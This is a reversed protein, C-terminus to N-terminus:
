LKCKLKAIWEYMYVCLCVGYIKEAQMLRYLFRKPFSLNDIPYEDLISRTVKHELFKRTENLKREVSLDSVVIARISARIKLLYTRQLRYKGKEFLNIQKLKREIENYYNITRQLRNPKYNKSLSKQNEFYFYGNEDVVAIRSSHIIFDFNFFIDESAIQKENVFYLMNDRIIKMSYMNSWVSPELQVDNNFGTEAGILPLLIGDQLASGTYIGKKIRIPRVIEQGNSMARIHSGFVADAHNEKITYVLNEIHTKSLWDDSDVFVVYEGYAINLGSNRAYGLGQNNKHIVRIRSDKKQYEECIRPCIDTSGDNVLIIDLNNYTQGIISNICRRLYQEVNYVPVIVSVLM